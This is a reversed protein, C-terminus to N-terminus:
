SHDFNSTSMVVSPNDTSTSPALSMENVQPEEQPRDNSRKDYHLLTHHRGNCKECGGSNCDKSVHNIQSTTVFTHHSKNHPNSVKLRSSGHKEGKSIELSELLEA